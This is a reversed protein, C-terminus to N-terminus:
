RDPNNRQSYLLFLTPNVGPTATEPEARSPHRTAVIEKWETVLEVLAPNGPIQFESLTIPSTLWIMKRIGGTTFYLRLGEHWSPKVHTLVVWVLVCFFSELDHAFTHRRPRQDLDLDGAM